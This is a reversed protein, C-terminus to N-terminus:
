GLEGAARVVLECGRTKARCTAGAQQEGMSTAGAAASDSSNTCNWHSIRAQSGLIDRTPGYPAAKLFCTYTRTGQLMYRCGLAGGPGGPVRLFM